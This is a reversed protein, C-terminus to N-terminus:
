RPDPSTVRLHVDPSILRIIGVGGGGGGGGGQLLMNPAGGAPSEVSGGQGGDAGQPSNGFGGDARNANLTGPNGPNGTGGAAESGEGGGGGNAAVSANPGMIHPAELVVMGGAGGGGGGADGSGAAHLGGRGGGGAANIPAVSDLQILNAAALYIAGGGAGGLGGPENGAGGNAGPCGGHLGAPLETVARGRTGGLKLSTGDSDGDGGNGGDAGFGGGGGGGAGGAGSGGVMAGGTACSAPAGAGGASVDIQADTAVTIRDSAVFAVARAGIARLAASATLQVTRAYIVDVPDGGIMITQVSITAQTGGTMLVQSDSSYSSTGSIMLDGVFVLPCTDLLSAFSTCGGSGDSMGGGDPRDGAHFGCGAAATGALGLVFVGSRM